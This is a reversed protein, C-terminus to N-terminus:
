TAASRLLSVVKETILRGADERLRAPFRTEYGGVRSFAKETPIYGIAGNTLESVFTYRFSSRQKMELGFEVFLECPVCALAFDVGAVVSVPVDVLPNRAYEEALALIQKAELWGWFETEILDVLAVRSAQLEGFPETGYDSNLPSASVPKSAKEKAERLVEAPIPRMPIALTDSRVRLGSQEVGAGSRIAQVAAEAITRGMHKAWDAGVERTESNQTDVQCINGCAGNMFLVTSGPDLEESLINSVYGPYDASIATSYREMVTGHCAFNVVGGLFRGSPDTAYIIGLEPDDPGELEVIDPDNKLPHTQITGDRMIVRRNFALGKVETSTVTLRAEQLARHAECAAEEIKAPLIAVYDREREGGLMAGTLPGSHTHTAAILVNESSMSLRAAIGGRIQDAMATPISVLDCSIIVLDVGDERVCMANAYLRSEISDAQPPHVQGGMRVGLPPTIDVRSFGAQM